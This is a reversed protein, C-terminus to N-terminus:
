GLKLERRKEEIRADIEELNEEMNVKEMTEAMREYIKKIKIRRGLLIELEEHLGADYESEAILLRTRLSLSRCILRTRQRTFWYTALRLILEGITWEFRVDINWLLHMALSAAEHKSCSGAVGITLPPANASSRACHRASDSYALLLLRPPSLNMEDFNITECDSLVLAGKVLKNRALKLSDLGKVQFVRRRFVHDLTEKTHSWPCSLEGPPNSGCHSIFVRACDSNHEVISICKAVSGLSLVRYDPQPVTINAATGKIALYIRREEKMHSSPTIRPCEFIWNLGDESGKSTGVLSADFELLLHEFPIDAFNSGPDYFKMRELVEELESTARFGVASHTDSLPLLRVFELHNQLNNVFFRTFTRAAYYFAQAKRSLRLATPSLEEKDEELYVFIRHSRDRLQQKLHPDLGSFDITLYDSSANGSFADGAFRVCNGLQKILEISVQLREILGEDFQAGRIDPGPVDAKLGFLEEDQFHNVTFIRAAEAM